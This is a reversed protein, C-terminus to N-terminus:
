EQPSYMGVLRAIFVAPFMVGVIAELNALM